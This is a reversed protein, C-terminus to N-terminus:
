VRYLAVIEKGQAFDVQDEIACGKSFGVHTTQDTAGGFVEHKFRLFKFSLKLNKCRENCTIIIKHSTDLGLGILGNVMKKCFLYSGQITIIKNPEHRWDAQALGAVTPFSTIPTLLEMNSRYWDVEQQCHLFLHDAGWGDVVSLWTPVEEALIVVLKPRAEPKQLFGEKVVQALLAPAVPPNLVDKLAERYVQEDQLVFEGGFPKPSNTDTCEIKLEDSDGDRKSDEVLVNM